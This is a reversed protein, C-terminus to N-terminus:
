IAHHDSTHVDHRDLLIGRWVNDGNARRFLCAVPRFVRGDTRVIGACCRDYRSQTVEGRVRAPGHEHGSTEDLVRNTGSNWKSSAPWAKARFVILLPRFHKAEFPVFVDSAPSAVPGIPRCWPTSPSYIRRPNAPGIYNARITQPLSRGRSLSRHEEELM